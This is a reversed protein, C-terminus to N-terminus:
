LPAQLQRSPGDGQQNEGGRSVLVDGLYVIRACDWNFRCPVM